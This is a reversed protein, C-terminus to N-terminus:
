KMAFLQFFHIHSVRGIRKGESDWEKGMGIGIGKGMGKGNGKGM